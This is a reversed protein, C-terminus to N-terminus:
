YKRLMFFANEFLKKANQVIGKCKVSNALINHCFFVWEVGRVGLCIQAQLSFFSLCPSAATM